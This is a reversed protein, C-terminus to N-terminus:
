GATRLKEALRDRDEPSVSDAVFVSMTDQGLRVGLVEDTPYEAFQWTDVWRPDEPFVSGRADVGVDDCDAMEASAFEKARHDTDMAVQTYVIGGSRVQLYCDNATGSEGALGCGAVAVTLVCTIALFSHRLTRTSM